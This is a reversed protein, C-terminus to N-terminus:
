FPQDFRRASTLWRRIAPRLSKFAKAPDGDHHWRFAKIQELVDVGPFDALLEASFAADVEPNYPYGPLSSLYDVIAQQILLASM